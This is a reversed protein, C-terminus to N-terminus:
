IQIGHFEKNENVHYYIVKGCKCVYTNVVLVHETYKECAYCLLIRIPQYTNPDNM